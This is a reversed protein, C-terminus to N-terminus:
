LLRKMVIGTEAHGPSPRFFEPLRTVEVFGAGAYIHRARHWSANVLLVISRLQPYLTLLRDVCQSFLRTGLGAGRYQPDLTMSAVYLCTGGVPEHAARISHGLLFDQATYAPRDTWIEAFFCGIRAEGQRAILSGQPFVEVREAYVAAAEQDGPAFGMTELRCIDALDDPTAVQLSFSDM